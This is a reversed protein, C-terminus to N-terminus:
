STVGAAREVDGPACGDCCELDILLGRFRIALVGDCRPCPASATGQDIYEANLAVCIRRRADREPPRRADIRRQREAEWAAWTADSVRTHPSEIPPGAPPRVAPRPIACRPGDQIPQRARQRHELVDLPEEDLFVGVIAGDNARHLITGDPLRQRSM